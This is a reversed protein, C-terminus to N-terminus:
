RLCKKIRDILDSAYQPSTRSWSEVEGTERNAEILIGSKVEIYFDQIPLYNRHCRQLPGKEFSASSFKKKLLFDLHFEPDSERPIVMVGVISRGKSDVSVAGRQGGTSDDYIWLEDTGDKLTRRIETPGGLSERAKELADGVTLM